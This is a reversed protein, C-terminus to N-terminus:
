EEQCITLERFLARVRMQSTPTPGGATLSAAWCARLFYGYPILIHEKLQIAFVAGDAGTIFDSVFDYLPGIARDAVDFEGYNAAAAPDNIPPQFNPCIYFGTLVDLLGAGAASDKGLMSAVELIWAKGPLPGQLDVTMSLGLPVGLGNASVDRIVSLETTQQCGL